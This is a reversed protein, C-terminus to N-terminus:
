RFTNSRKAWAEKEKSRFNIQAKGFDSRRRVNRWILWTAAVVLLVAAAMWQGGKQTVHAVWDLQNGVFYGITIVVSCWVSAGVPEVRSFELLENRGCGIPGAMCRVGMIFRALLVAKSGHM